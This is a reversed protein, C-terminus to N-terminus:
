GGKLLALLDEPSPEGQAQPPPMGENPEAGPVPESDPGYLGRLENGRVDDAAGLMDTYIGELATGEEDLEPEMM